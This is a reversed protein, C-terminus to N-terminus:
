PGYGALNRQGHPNELFSRQLSNGNGGGPSRGSGPISGGGRTEQMVLLNQVASGSPFDMSIVCILYEFCFEVKRQKGMGLTPICHPFSTDLFCPSMLSPVHSCRDLGPSCSPLLLSEPLERVKGGEAVDIPCVEAWFPASWTFAM